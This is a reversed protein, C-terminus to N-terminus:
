YRIVNKHMEIMLIIKIRIILACLNISNVSSFQFRILVFLPRFFVLGKYIPLPYSPPPTLINHGHCEWGGRGVGDM